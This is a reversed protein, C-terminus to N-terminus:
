GLCNKTKRSVATRLHNDFHINKFTECYKCPFIQTPTWKKVFNCAQLSAPKFSLLFLGWCLQIGTFITFTKLVGKKCFLEPPQSEREQISSLHLISFLREEKRGELRLIVEAM